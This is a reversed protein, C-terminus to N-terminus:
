ICICSWFKSYSNQYIGFKLIYRCRNIKSMNSINVAGNILEEYHECMYPIQELAAVQGICEYLGKRTVKYQQLTFVRTVIEWFHILRNRKKAGMVNQSHQRYLVLPQNVYYIKGVLSAILMMWWDHMLLNSTDSVLALKALANNVIMTCGAGYGRLMTNPFSAESVSINCFSTFSDAIVDMSENVVKMDSYAVCPTNRDERVIRQYMTEVKNPLWIDDQDCFMYYDYRDIVSQMLFMFNAKSSGTAKGEIIVFHEPCVSQYEKIIEKTCDKSGDDHIYCVFDQMTQKRLSELQERIYKEGNYAALLIAIKKM